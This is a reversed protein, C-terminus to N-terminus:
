IFYIFSNGSNDLFLNIKQRHRNKGMDITKRDFCEDFCPQLYELLDTLIAQFLWCFLGRVAVLQFIQGTVTTCARCYKMSTDIISDSDKVLGIAREKLDCQM